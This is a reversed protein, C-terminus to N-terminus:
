ARLAPLVRSCIERFLWADGKTRQLRVVFATQTDDVAVVELEFAVSYRECRLLFPAAPAYGVKQADLVRMAPASVTGNRDDAWGEVTPGACAQGPSANCAAAESSADLEVGLAEVHLHLRDQVAVAKRLARQVLM